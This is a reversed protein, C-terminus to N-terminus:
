SKKKEEEIGIQKGISENEAVIEKLMPLDNKSKLGFYDMFRESTEYIIPRGPADSRGKIDILEKELLKKITYDVSVGRIEEVEGKTIPQKYAIIALTEMASRSLKKKGTVKLYDEITKHYQGKTLFVYGGDIEAIEFIYDDASYKEMLQEVKERVDERSLNLELTGSLSDAIQDANVPEKTAYIIAEIHRIYDTM